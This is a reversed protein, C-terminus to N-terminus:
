SLGLAVLRGFRRRRLCRGLVVVLLWWRCAGTFTRRNKVSLDVCLLAVCCNITARL